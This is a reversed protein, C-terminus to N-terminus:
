VQFACDKKDCNKCNKPSVAGGGLGVIATVSKTPTMVLSDTLTLGIKKECQLIRFIDKQAALPFDGYGPSFRGGICGYEKQWEQCLIDCLAEIREAGIAQMFLLKLPSIDGYKVLLRDLGVGITAAFILVKDSDKIAALLGQSDRAGQVQRFLTERDMVCYCFRPTLLPECETMCESLTPMLTEGFAGKLGAYRCIEQKNFPPLKCM